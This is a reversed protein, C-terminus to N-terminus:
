DTAGACQFQCFGPKVHGNTVVAVPLRRHVNGPHHLSQSPYGPDVPGVQALCSFGFEQHVPDDLIEPAEIDEHIVRRDSRYRIDILDGYLLPVVHHRQIHSPCEDATLMGKALHTSLPAPPDYEDTGLRPLGAPTEHPCM